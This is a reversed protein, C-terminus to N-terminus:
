CWGQTSSYRLNMNMKFRTIAKSSPGGTTVQMKMHVRCLPTSPPILTASDEKRGGKQGEVKPPPRHPVWSM